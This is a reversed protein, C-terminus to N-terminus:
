NENKGKNYVEKLIDKIECMDLDGKALKAIESGKELLYYDESDRQYKQLTISCLYNILLVAENLGEVNPLDITNSRGNFQKLESLRLAADVNLSYIGGKHKLKM